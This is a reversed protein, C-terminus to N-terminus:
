SSLTRYYEDFFKSATLNNKIEIKLNSYNDDNVLIKQILLETIKVDSESMGFASGYISKARIELSPKILQLNQDHYAMGLFVIRDANEIEFHISSQLDTQKMQESYTKIKETQNLLRNFDIDAGFTVDYLNGTFWPLDGVKGYPHYIKLKKNILDHATNAPISYAHELAISLYQEICRDYNFVIFSVNEFIKEINNVHVGNVLIKTFKALWTDALPMLSFKSTSNNNYLKSKKEAELITSVIGLKSVLEIEKDGDHMEIYSDISPVLGLANSINWAKHLYPNIDRQGQQRVFVRLAEQIKYDGSTQKTGEEFRIDIKKSLIKKFNDGQPFGFEASAGAGVIFVTKSRFM